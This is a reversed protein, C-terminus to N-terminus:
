EISRHNSFLEKLIKKRYIFIKELRPKVLIPHMMRGLMGGPVKYDIIDEIEVGSEIKKLFHKHHWFVYPGFRQEDVFYYGHDVHSIETVWNIRIGSLLELKYQIIQGPFISRDAGSVIEFRMNEPTIRQLNSPDSLFTWAQEISIPLQQKTELRFM